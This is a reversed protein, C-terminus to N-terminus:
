HKSSPTTNDHVAFPGVICVVTLVLRTISIWSILGVASFPYFVDWDANYEHMDDAVAESASGGVFAAMENVLSDFKPAGDAAAM